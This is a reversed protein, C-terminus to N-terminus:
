EQLLAERNKHITCDTRHNISSCIRKPYYVRQMGNQHKRVYIHRSSILSKLCTQLMSVPRNIKSQMDKITIGQPHSQVLELVRDTTNPGPTASIIRIVAM